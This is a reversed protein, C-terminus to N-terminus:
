APKPLVVLTAAGSNSATCADLPEGLTVAEFGDSGRCPSIAQEVSSIASRSQTPLSAPFSAASRRIAARYMIVPVWVTFVVAVSVVLITVTVPVNELTGTGCMRCVSNAKVTSSQAVSNQSGPIQDIELCQGRKDHKAPV